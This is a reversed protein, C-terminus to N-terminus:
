KQEDMLIGDVSVKYPNGNKDLCRYYYPPSNPDGTVLIVTECHEVIYEINTIKEPESLSLMLNGSEKDFVFANKLDEKIKLLNIADSAIELNLFFKNAQKFAYDLDKRGYYFLAMPKIKREDYVKSLKPVLKLKGQVSIGLDVLDYALNGVSEDFGLAKATAKYGERLPGQVESNGEYFGIGGEYIGNLGHAILPAGILCGLGTYCLGIGGITMGLGGLISLGNIIWDISQDTLSKEEKKIEASGQEYTIQGSEVKKVIGYSFSEIDQKFENKIESYYLHKECLENACDILHQADIRIRNDDENVMVPIYQESSGNITQSTSLIDNNVQSSFVKPSSYPIDTIVVNSGLPCGCQVISGEVAQVKGHNNIRNEGTAIKGAQGCKPCITTPDGVRLAMKQHCSVNQITAICTAGTTTKDGNIAIAKGFINPRLKSM